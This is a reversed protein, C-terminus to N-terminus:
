IVEFIYKIRGISGMDGYIDIVLKNKKREELYQFDLVDFFFEFLDLMLFFM